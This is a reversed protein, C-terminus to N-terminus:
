LRPIGSEIIIKRFKEVDNKVIAAFEQPTNGVVQLGLQRFREGTEAVTLLGASIDSAKRSADRTSLISRSLGEILSRSESVFDAQRAVRLGHASRRPSM